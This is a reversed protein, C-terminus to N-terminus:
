LNNIAYKQFKVWENFDNVYIRKYDRIRQGAAKPTNFIVGKVPDFKAYFGIRAGVKWSTSDVSDFHFRKLNDTSTYGLGHIMCDNEHAKNIFWAMYKEITKRSVGDTMLGGFAIYNYNKCLDIFYQKGRSIHWVPITQHGTKAEIRDRLKEVGKIGLIPDIDLEFFRQIKHTNIFDAYGDAYSDWDLRADKKTGLFTFAGSDLLFKGFKPIQTAIWANHRCDYYSELVSLGNISVIGSEIQPKLNGIGALYVDM